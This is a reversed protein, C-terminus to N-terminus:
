IRMTLLRALATEFWHHGGDKSVRAVAREEPHPMKHAAAALRRACYRMDAEQKRAKGIGPLYRKKLV